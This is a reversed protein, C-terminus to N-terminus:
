LCFVSTSQSVAYYTLANNFPVYQGTILKIVEQAGCGGIFAAVSHLEAAGFRCMEHVYDDKMIPFCGWENMLSSVYNKLKMIDSEVEDNTQGPYRCYESHFKDVARLLIYFIIDSDEHELDAILSQINSTEPNYENKIARGRIVRLCHANKCFVKVEHESIFNPPKGLNSLLQQVRTYMAHSDEDAKAKYINQLKIYSQTDSTMDPIVGRVPLCGQGENSVFEKLAKALIWFPKSESTLNDCLPDNLIGQIESPISTVAISRNIARCAEEFNEEEDKKRMGAVIEAKLLKKGVMNKPIEDNNRNKWSDLYKLLIVVFPIHSHEQDTLKELDISDVYERLTPFPRDLRLDHFENEPRSEIITRDSFQLRMYGIMGYVRCVLLPVGKEWLVDALKLLIVEELNTAIVVTFKSFFNPEAQLICELSEDVFEGRVDPNLELLHETAVKARSKGISDKDLFFNNGADQGNVVKGDLITFAGVGPLVLSKLIETGTASANILCVHAAELAYQGHDDWLRLQRDYKVRKPSEEYKNDGAHAM